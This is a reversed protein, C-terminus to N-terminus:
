AAAVCLIAAVFVVAGAALYWWAAAGRSPVGHRSSSTAWLLISALGLGGSAVMMATGALQVGGTAEGSLQWGRVQLRGVLPMGGALAVGRALTSGLAIPDSSDADPRPAHTV